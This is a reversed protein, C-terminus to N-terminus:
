QGPELLIMIVVQTILSISKKLSLITPPLITCNDTFEPEPVDPISACGVTISTFLSPTITEPATTDQVTITQTYVVSINDCDDTVIWTNTYTGAQPCSQDALYAGSTPHLINEINTKKRREM